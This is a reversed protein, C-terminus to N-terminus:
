TRIKERLKDMDARKGTLATLVDVGHALYFAKHIERDTLGEARRHGAWLAISQKLADQSDIRERQRNAAAKGAVAGAAYGVRNAADQPSELVVARRMAELVSRDLLQLDGDVHEPKSRQQPEPKFGCRPCTTRYREYLRYCGDNVCTTLQIIEEDRKGRKARDDLSWMRPWDPPNHRKVNGVHDIVMGHSKGEFPRLARGFQQAYVAYSQTPRAMSVVELAPLDFGEGFLDVNVLQLLEGRRLRRVFDNRVRDPTKASVAEAPVGRSRYQDAMDHATEVDTTFTIGVKGAAFRLYHDVVDGVIHSRKSAEAMQKFSYDGTSGVRLRSVDFDGPPGVIDYDTLNGLGMLEVMSPGLVMTDFLGSAHRGLGKGDAREPTATVGLGRANPFMAAAKGWKNERLVHHAEDQVWWNVQKMWTQLTNDNRRSVLTDVGAVGTPAQPNYFSRGFEINHETVIASIVNQPAIIRHYVGWRGLHISLQTVLEQRHAIICKHGTLEHAINGICVSKGGGTPMVLLVNDAGNNWDRYVDAVAQQQYPRLKM